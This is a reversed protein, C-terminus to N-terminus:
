SDIKASCGKTSCLWTILVYQLELFDQTYQVIKEDTKSRFEEELLNIQNQLYETDRVKEIAYEIAKEYVNRIKTLFPKYTKFQDVFMRFCERYPQIHTIDFSDDKELGDPSIQHKMLLQELHRELEFLVKPKAIMKNMHNKSDDYADVNAPWVELSVNDEFQNQNIIGPVLSDSGTEGDHKVSQKIQPVQQDAFLGAHGSSLSKSLFRGSIMTKIPSVTNHLTTVRRMDTSMARRKYGRKVDSVSGKKSSKAFSHEHLPLAKMSENQNNTSSAPSSTSGTINPLVHGPMSEEGMPASLHITSNGSV